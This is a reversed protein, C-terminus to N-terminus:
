KEENGYRRNILLVSHSFNGFHSQALLTLLAFPLFEFLIFMIFQSLLRNILGGSKENYHLPHKGTMYPLPTM